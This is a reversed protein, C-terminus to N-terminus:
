MAMWCRKFPEKGELLMGVIRQTQIAASIGAELHTQGLTPDVWPSSDALIKRALAVRGGLYMLHVLLISDRSSGDSEGSVLSELQM